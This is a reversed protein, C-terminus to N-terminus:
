PQRHRWPIRAGAGQDAGAAPMAGCDRDINAALGSRWYNLDLASAPKLRLNRTSERIYGTADIARVFQWAEYDFGAPNLMGRPQRIKVVFQWREGARPVRKNQYWNFRALRPMAAPYAEIRLDELYLSVRDPYLQPIDAIVGSLLLNRNDFSDLLRHSLHHHLLASSWLFAAALLLLFRYRSHCCALLLLAPAYASWFPDPLRNGYFALLAGVLIALAHQPM